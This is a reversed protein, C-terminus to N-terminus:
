ETPVRAAYSSYEGTRLSAPWEQHITRERWNEFHRQLSPAAIVRSIRLWEPVLRAARALRRAASGPISADDGPRGHMCTGDDVLEDIEDALRLVVVTRRERLQEDSFDELSADELLHYAHVLHEVDPGFHMRLYERRQDLSREGPFPVRDQYVAHLLAAAVCPGRLGCEVVVSATGVLHCAFPKGSGRLVGATLRSALLYARNALSLEAEDAGSQMMQRYLQLNTQATSFEM